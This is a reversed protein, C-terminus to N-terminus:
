CDANAADQKEDDSPKWLSDQDETLDKNEDSDNYSNNESIDLHACAGRFTLPKSM